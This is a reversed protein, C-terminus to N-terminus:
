RVCLDSMIVVINNRVAPDPCVALERAMAPVWKKALDDRQLCLKGLALYAHARVSAPQATTEAVGGDGEAAILAEVVLIQGQSIREPCMIAAEGLTFLQRAVKFEDLDDGAGRRAAISLQQECVHLLEGAFSITSKAVTSSSTGAVVQDLKMVAHMASPVLPAPLDFHRLRVRLGEVIETAMSGDMSEALNGIVGLISSCVVTEDPDASVWAAHIASVSM